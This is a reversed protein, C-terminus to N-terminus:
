EVTVRGRMGAQYHGPMNCDYEFNGPHSFTWILVRREHAPVHISNAYHYHAHEGPSAYAQEMEKRHITQAVADGITFDHEVDSINTLVFRISEGTKVKIGTPEFSMDRMSVKITRTM